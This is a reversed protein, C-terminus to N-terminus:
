KVCGWPIAYLARLVNLEDQLRWIADLPHLHRTRCCVPKHDVGVPAAREALPGTRLNLPIVALAQDLEAVVVMRGDGALGRERIRFKRSFHMDARRILSPM